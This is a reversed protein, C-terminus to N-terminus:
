TWLIESGLFVPGEACVRKFKEPGKTRIVCGMCVAIGCAMVQEMSVWSIESRTEALDTTKEMLIEPGCSYWTVKKEIPNSSLWQLPNGHFGKTGDDTCLITPDTLDPLDPIFSASRFGCILTHEINRSGLYRSFYLIPGLGVGGALLVPYSDDNASFHNGLPGIVEIIDGEHKMSLNKSGKGRIEYIFEVYGAEASFDSFAFPRRLLPVQDDSTKVEMFQGPLPAMGSWTCRMLFYNDAIQRNQLIKEFLIKSM